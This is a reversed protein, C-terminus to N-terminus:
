GGVTWLRSQVKLFVQENGAGVAQLRKADENSEM